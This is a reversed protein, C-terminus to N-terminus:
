HRAPIRASCQRNGLAKGRVTLAVLHSPTKKPCAALGAGAIPPHANLVFPLKNMPQSPSLLM